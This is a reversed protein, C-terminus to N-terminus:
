FHVLPLIDMIGCFLLYCGFLGLPLKLIKWKQNKKFFIKNLIFALTVIILFGAIPLYIEPSSAVKMFTLETNQDIVNEIGSGIAVTVFMSPLSGVDTKDM